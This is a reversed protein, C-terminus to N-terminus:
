RSKGSGSSLVSAHTRVDNGAKHGQRQCCGGGCTFLALQEDPDVAVLTIGAQLLHGVSEALLIAHRGLDLVRLVRGLLEFLGGLSSAPGVHEQPRM